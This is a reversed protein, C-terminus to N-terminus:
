NESGGSIFSAYKGDAQWQYVLQYFAKVLTAPLTEWTAHSGSPERICVLTSLSDSDEQVGVLLYRRRDNGEGIHKEGCADARVRSVTATVLCLLGHRAIDHCERPRISVARYGRPIAPSLPKSTTRLNGEVSRRVHSLAAGLNAPSGSPLSLM